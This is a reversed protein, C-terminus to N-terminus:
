VTAKKNRKIMQNEHGPHHHSNHFSFYSKNNLNFIYAHRGKKFVKICPTYLSQRFFYRGDKELKKKIQVSLKNYWLSRNLAVTIDEETIALFM